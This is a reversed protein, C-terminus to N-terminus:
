CRCPGRLGHFPGTAISFEFSRLHPVGYSIRGDEGDRSDHHGLLRDMKLWEEKHAEHDHSHIGVLESPYYRGPPPSLSVTFSLVRLERLEHVAGVEFLGMFPSTPIVGPDSNHSSGVVIDLSLVCNTVRSLTFLAKLYRIRIGHSCATTAAYDVSDGASM